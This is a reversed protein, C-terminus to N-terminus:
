KRGYIFQHLANYIGTVSYINDMKKINGDLPHELNDFKKESVIMRGDM